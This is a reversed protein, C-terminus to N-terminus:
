PHSSNKVAGVPGRTVCSNLREVNLHFTLMAGAPPVKARSASTTEQLHACQLQQLRSTSANKLMEISRPAALSFFGSDRVNPRIMKEVVLDCRSECGQNHLVMDLAASQFPPVGTSPRRCVLSGTRLSKTM